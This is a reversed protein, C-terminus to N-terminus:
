LMLACMSAMGINMATAAAEDLGADCGQGRRLSRFFQVATPIAFALLAATLVAGTGTALATLEHHHEGPPMAAIMWVMAAMMVAHMAQHWWPHPGLDIRTRAAALATLLAYWGTAAVFVILEARWPVAEWWPWSMAVMDASMAVHFVHGVALLPRSFDTVVRLLSYIALAAFLVTFVWPLM